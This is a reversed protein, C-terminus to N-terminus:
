FYDSQGDFYISVSNGREPAIFLKSLIIRHKNEERSIMNLMENTLACVGMSAKMALRNPMNMCKPGTVSLPVSIPHLLLRSTGWGSYSVRYLSNLGTNNLASVHTRVAFSAPIFYRVM